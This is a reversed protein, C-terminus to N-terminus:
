GIDVEIRGCNLFPDVLGHPVAVGEYGRHRITADVNCEAFAGRRERGGGIDSLSGVLASRMVEVGSGGGINVESGQLVGKEITEFPDSGVGVV